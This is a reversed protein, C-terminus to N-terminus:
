RHCRPCTSSTAADWRSVVSATPLQDFCIKCLQVQPLHLCNQDLGSFYSDSPIYSELIPATKQYRIASRYQRTITQGSLHLTRPFVSFMPVVVQQIHTASSGALRDAEVNLQPLLDLDEFATDNDQHGLVHEFIAGIKAQRVEHVVKDVLDYDSDM